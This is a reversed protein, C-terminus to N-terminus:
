KRERKTEGGKQDKGKGKRLRERGKRVGKEEKPMSYFTVEHVWICILTINHKAKNRTRWVPPLTKVHVYYM